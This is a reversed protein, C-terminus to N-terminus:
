QKKQKRPERLNLRCITHHLDTCAKCTRYKCRPCTTRRKVWQDCRDCLTM